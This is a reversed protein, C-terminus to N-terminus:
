DAVTWTMDGPYIWHCVEIRGPGSGLAVFAGHGASWDSTDLHCIAVGGNVKTEGAYFVAEYVKVRPVAHCYYVQYPFLSQHCSVARTERGGDVTRIEGLVVKGKSGAASVTSRVVVDGGLVNVAFDIMDEASTPCLKREGRSPARECEEVTSAMAKGLASDATVNFLRHMEQLKESSFYLKSAVSRPLFARVPFKERLDPLQVTGGKKLSSERFFRGPEIWRNQLSDGLTANYSSFKVSKKDAYDKFTTNRGYTTFDIPIKGVSKEGYGSFTDSGLNFSQSYESFSAASGGKGGKGYSSFSDDGVNAQGRYSSFKELGGQGRSGYSSFKNEPVNGNFGYSTFNDRASTAEEGYNKFTSAIVNSDNAYSTFSLPIGTGRKGYGSFSQDGSNTEDSYSKFTGNRGTAETQYNSFKLAPM